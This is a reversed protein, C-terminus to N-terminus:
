LACTSMYIYQTYVIWVCCLVYSLFCLIYYVNYHIYVEMSPETYPNYAPKFRIETIGIKEFFTRILAILNGLTLNRDAVLGTHNIYLQHITHYVCLFLTSCTYLLYIMPTHTHTHNTYLLTFYAYIYVAYITNLSHTM